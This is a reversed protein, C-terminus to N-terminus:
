KVAIVNHTAIRRNAVTGAFYNQDNMSILAVLQEGVDDLVTVEEWRIDGDDDVLVLEGLMDPFMKCSGDPMTMPTTTSAIVEIGSVTVMRLCPQLMFSVNTIERPTIGDPAYMAGDIVKGAYANAAIFDALLYMATAVCGGGGGGGSGGTALPNPYSSPGWRLENSIHFTGTSVAGGGSANQIVVTFDAMNVWSLGDNYDRFNYNSSVGQAQMVLGISVTSALSIGTGLGMPSNQQLVCPGENSLTGVTYTFDKAADYYNKTGYTSNAVTASVVYAAGIGASPNQAWNGSALTRGNTYNYGDYINYAPCDDSLYNTSVSTLTWTGDPHLNLYADCYIRNAWDLGWCPPTISGGDYGPPTVLYGVTGKGAWLNTIDSSSGTQRYSIDPIKSGHALAAFRLPTRSADMYAPDQAGNGAVEPEFLNVWDVLSANRFTTPNSM